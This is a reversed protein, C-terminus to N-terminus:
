HLFKKYQDFFIKAIEVTDGQPDIIYDTFFEAFQSEIQDFLDTRFKKENFPESQL